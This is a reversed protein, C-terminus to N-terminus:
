HNNGGRATTSEMCRRPFLPSHLEGKGGLLFMVIQLPPCDPRASREVGYENVAWAHDSPLDPLRRRLNIDVNVRGSGDLTARVEGGPGSSYFSPAVGNLWKFAVTAGM